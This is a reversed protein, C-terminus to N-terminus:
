FANDIMITPLRALSIVYKQINRIIATKTIKIIGKSKNNKPAFIINM